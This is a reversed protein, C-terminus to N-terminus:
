SLSHGTGGEPALPIEDENDKLFLGFFVLVLLIKSFM